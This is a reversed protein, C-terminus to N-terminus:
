TLDELSVFILVFSLVGYMRSIDQVLEPTVNRRQFRHHMLTALEERLMTKAMEESVGDTSAKCSVLHDRKEHYKDMYVDRKEHFKEM